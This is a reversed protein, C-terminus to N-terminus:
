DDENRSLDVFAYTSLGTDEDRDEKVALSLNELKRNIQGLM